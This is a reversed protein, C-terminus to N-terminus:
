ALGNRIAVATAASRSDVGLKTFIATVHVKVTAEAIFLQDGIARNTHGQALLHLVERERKSLGFTSAPEPRLSPAMASEDSFLLVLIPDLAETVTMERGAAWAADFEANGLAARISAIARDHTPRYVDEGYPNIGEAEAAVENAGYLRAAM